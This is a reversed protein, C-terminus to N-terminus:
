IILCHPEPVGNGPDPFMCESGVAIPDVSYNAKESSPLTRGDAESSLVTRSQSVVVPAQFCVSSPWLSQTLATAKEGFPLSRADAEDSLV